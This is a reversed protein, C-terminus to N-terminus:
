EFMLKKIAHVILAFSLIIFALGLAVFLYRGFFIMLLIVIAPILFAIAYQFITTYIPIRAQRRTERMQDFGDDDFYAAM